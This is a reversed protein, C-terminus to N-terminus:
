RLFAQLRPVAQKRMAQSRWAGPQGRCFSLVMDWLARHGGPDKDGWCGLVVAAAQDSSSLAEPCRCCHMGRQPRSERGPQMM